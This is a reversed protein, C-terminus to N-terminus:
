NERKIGDRYPEGAKYLEIRKALTDDLSQNNQKRALQQARQSVKIADDFRMTEAYAMALTDLQTPDAGKSLQVAREALRVAEEGSRDTETPSAALVHAANTLAVIQNPNLDLAKHWEALASKADGRGYYLAVGLYAHAESSGSRFLM